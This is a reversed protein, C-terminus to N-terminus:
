EEEVIRVAGKDASSVLKAYARLSAPIRRDRAAPRFHQQAAMRAAIEEDGAMLRISRRPIDIEIEDGTRIVAIEGGSAAEPSVHGISLGSTGGSFRGDTILACAKDLHRSKLYSTPYLMEQMGPGGKPGEYRIVVVDGAQM